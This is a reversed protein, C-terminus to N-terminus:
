AHESGATLLAHPLWRQEVQQLSEPRTVDFLFVFADAGRYFANGLVRFVSVVTLSSRCGKFLSM